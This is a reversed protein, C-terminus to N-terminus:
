YNFKKNNNNFGLFVFYEFLLLYAFGPSKMLDENLSGTKLHPEHSSAGAASPQQSTSTASSPRYYGGADPSQGSTTTGNAGANFYHSKNLSQEFDKLFKNLETENKFDREFTVRQQEGNPGKQTRTM